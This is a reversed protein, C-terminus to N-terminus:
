LPSKAFRNGGYAPSNLLPSTTSGVRDATKKSEAAMTKGMLDWDIAEDKELDVLVKVEHHLHKELPPGMDDILKTFKAPDYLVFDDAAASVFNDFAVLGPLFAEHENHNTEMVGKKSSQQELLPFYVTEETLHHAHLVRSWCDSFVMFDMIDMPYKVNPAQLYISNLGRLLVNHVLAM